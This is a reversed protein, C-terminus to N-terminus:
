SMERCSLARRSGCLVTMRNRNSRIFEADHKFVNLKGYEETIILNKRHAAGSFNIKFFDIKRKVNQQITPIIILSDLHNM